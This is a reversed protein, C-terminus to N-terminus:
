RLIAKLLAAVIQQTQLSSTSASTQNVSLQRVASECATQVLQRRDSDSDGQASQARSIAAADAAHQASAADQCQSTATVDAVHRADREAVQMDLSNVMASLKLIRADRDAIMAHMAAQNTEARRACYEFAGAGSIMAATLAIGMYRVFPSAKM